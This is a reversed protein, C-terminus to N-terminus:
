RNWRGAGTGTFDELSPSKGRLFSARSSKIHNKKPNQPLAIAKVPFGPYASRYGGGNKDVAANGKDGGSPPSMSFLSFGADEAIVGSASWNSILEL